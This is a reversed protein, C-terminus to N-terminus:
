LEEIDDMDIADDGGEYEELETIVLKNVGLSVGKKNKWSWEYPTVVVDAKSGNGVTDGRLLSGDTDYADISYESKCTVYFGRDDGKNAVEIGMAALGEVQKQTLQSIDVQYKNSMENRRTLFAWYITVDKLKVPKAM